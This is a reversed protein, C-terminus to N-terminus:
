AFTFVAAKVVRFFPLQFTSTVFLFGVRWRGMRWVFRVAFRWALQVMKSDLRHRCHRGALPQVLRWQIGICGDCFRDSSQLLGDANRQVRQRCLAPTRCFEPWFSRLISNWCLCISYDNFWLRGVEQRILSRLMLSMLRAHGDSRGYVAAFAFCRNWGCNSQKRM